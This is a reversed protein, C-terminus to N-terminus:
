TSREVCRSESLARKSCAVNLVGYLLSSTCPLQIRLTYQVTRVALPLSSVTCNSARRGENLRESRATSSTRKLKSGGCPAICPASVNLVGAHRVRATAVLPAGWQPVRRM